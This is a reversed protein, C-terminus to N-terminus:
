SRVNTELQAIKSPWIVLTKSLVLWPFVPAVPAPASAAQVLRMMKPL